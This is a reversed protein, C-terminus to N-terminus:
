VHVFPEVFDWIRACGPGRGSSGACSWSQEDKCWNQQCIPNGVSYTSLPRGSRRSRHSGPRALWTLGRFACGSPPSRLAATSAAGCCKLCASRKM